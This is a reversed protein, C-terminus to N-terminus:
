ADIMKQLVAVPDLTRWPVGTSHAARTAKVAADICGKADRNGAYRSEDYAVAIERAAKAAEGLDWLDNDHRALFVDEGLHALASEISKAGVTASRITRGLVARRWINGIDYKEAVPDLSPLITEWMWKVVIDLRNRECGSERDTRAAFPLLTRWTADNRMKQSIEDQVLEIWRGIVYSMCQPSRNALKGTLAMYIAAMSSAAEKTGTGRPIIYGPRALYARLREEAEPTWRREYYWPLALSLEHACSVTGRGGDESHYTVGGQPAISYRARPLRVGSRSRFGASHSGLRQALFAMLSLADSDGHISAAKKKDINSLAGSYSGADSSEVDEWSFASDHLASLVAVVRREEGSPVPFYETYQFSDKVPPSTEPPWVALAIRDWDNSSLYGASTVAEFQDLNCHDREFRLSDALLHFAAEERTAQALPVRALAMWQPREREDPMKTWLVWHRRARHLYYPSVREHMLGWNWEVTGLHDVKRPGRPYAAGPPRQENGAGADFLKPRKPLVEVSLIDPKANTGVVRPAMGIQSEVRAAQEGRGADCAPELGFPFM